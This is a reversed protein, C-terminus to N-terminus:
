SEDIAELWKDWYLRWPEVDDYSPLKEHTVTVRTRSDSAADFSFLAGWPRRTPRSM